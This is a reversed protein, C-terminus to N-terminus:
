KILIAASTLLSAVSVWFSVSLVNNGNVISQRKRQKNPEIYIVDGQKLYFAPSSMMQKSDTLNVTYTKIEGGEKRIVTVNERKGQITMDGALAIGELLTIQDVNLDYRGPKSVEGLVSIGTNIFEVTVVPDNIYGHGMIEGKIFAALEHRTMGEVNLTGLLPYDITGTESVTFTNIGDQTGLAYERYFDAGNPSASQGLRSSVINLNFLSALNKDKASVTISLKDFPEIRITNSQSPISQGIVEENQINQLYTINEPTKCSTVAVAMLICCLTGRLIKKFNMKIPRINLKCPFDM